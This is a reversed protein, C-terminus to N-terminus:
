VGKKAIRSFLNDLPEEDTSQHAAWREANWVEFYDGMGVIIVDKALGTRERYEQKVQIRGQPDLPVNDGLSIYDRRFKRVDEDFRSLTRVRAEIEQWETFPHVELYAKATPRTIVDGIPAIVLESGYDSQLVDRFKAPISLRGKPDVTHRFQGRFAM